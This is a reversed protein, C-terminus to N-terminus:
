TDEATLAGPELLVEPFMWQTKETQGEREKVSAPARAPIAAAEHYSFEIDPTKAKRAEDMLRVTEQYTVEGGAKLVLHFSDPHKRKMEILGLYIQDFDLDGSSTAKVDVQEKKEGDVLVQLHVAKQNDAVMRIQTNQKQSNEVAKQISGPLESEVVMIQVFASSILLVPVLKVMVSLLPALDLEFEHSTERRRPAQRRTRM